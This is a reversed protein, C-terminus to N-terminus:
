PILVADIVHINGNSTEVDALIVRAGDIFVDGGNIVVDLTLGEVTTLSNMTVVDEAYLRGPVVHYKLINSLVLKNGPLLLREVIGAPLNAFADDSPAFVTFPGASQLTPVLCAADVATVLTQFSGNSIATEVLDSLNPLLPTDIVHVVGNSAFLDTYQVLSQDIWVGQSSVDVDLRQDYVSTLFDAAVVDAASVVGPVVHYLLVQELTEPDALLNNIGSQGFAQLFAYDTPAFVTFEQTGELVVDLGTTELATLLINFRGTSDALEVINQASATSGLAIVTSLLASRFATM